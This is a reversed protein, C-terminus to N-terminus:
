YTPIVENNFKWQMENFNKLQSGYDTKRREVEQVKKEYNLKAKEVDAKTVDKNNDKAVYRMRLNECNECAKKFDRESTELKRKASVLDNNKQKCDSNLKQQKVKYDKPKASLVIKSHLM